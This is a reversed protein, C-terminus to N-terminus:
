GGMYMPLITIKDGDKLIKDHVIHPSIVADNYTIVVHPFLKKEDISFIKQAIPPYRKAMSDLLQRVTTGDEVKEERASRMESPSEFDGGLENGLWLWLEVTVRNM